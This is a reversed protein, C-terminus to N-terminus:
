GMARKIENKRLIDRVCRLPLWLAAAVAELRWAAVELWAEAESENEAMTVNMGRNLAVIQGLRGPDLIPELLVFAFQPARSAALM